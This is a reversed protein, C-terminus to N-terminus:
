NRGGRRAGAGAEGWPQRWEGRQARQRLQQIAGSRLEQLNTRQEDTLVARVEAAAARSTERIQQHVPQLDRVRARLQERQEATLGRPQAPRVEAWAARIQALRPGNEQEVRSRIAELRTVQEATLDLDAQRRLVSAAPNAVAGMGGPGMGRVLGPGEGRLAAGRQGDGRQAQPRRAEVAERRLEQLRAQQEATLVARVEVAAARNAEQAQERLPQLEQMRARLQQRQEPTMMRMAGPQMDGMASRMAERHAANQQEVRAQIAELRSVQEATLELDARRELAARAPNAVMGAQGGMGRVMAPREGRTPGDQAALPAAVLVLAAMVTMSARLRGM